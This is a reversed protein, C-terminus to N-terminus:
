FKLYFKNSVKEHELQSRISNQIIDDSRWTIIKVAFPIISYSLSLSQFISIRTILSVSHRTLYMKIILEGEVPTLTVLSHLVQQLYEV